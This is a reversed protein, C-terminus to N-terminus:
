FESNLSVHFQQKTLKHIQIYEFVMFMEDYERKGDRVKSYTCELVEDM